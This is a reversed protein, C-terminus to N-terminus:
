LVKHHGPKEAALGEDSLRYGQSRSVLTQESLENNACGGCTHEVLWRPFYSLHSEPADSFRPPCPGPTGSILHSDGESGRGGQPSSGGQSKVPSTPPPHLELAGGLYTCQLISAIALLALSLLQALGGGGLSSPGRTAAKVSCPFSSFRLERLVTGSICIELREFLCRPM